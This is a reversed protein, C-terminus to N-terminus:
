KVPYCYNHSATIDLVLCEGTESDIINASITFQFTNRSRIFMQFDDIRKYGYKRICDNFWSYWNNWIKEKDWSPREYANWINSYNWRTFEVAKQPKNPFYTFYEGNILRTESYNKCTNKM